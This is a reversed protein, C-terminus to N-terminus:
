MNWLEKKGTSIALVGTNLIEMIDEKTDILGGAIVPINISGCVRKLIGPMVAPMIEIMDPEVSHITKQMTNYSQSDVLFARQIAIMGEQRAYKVFSSRTSMIGDPAVTQALYRLAKQDKGLGEILDFHIFVIKGYDRIKGVCGKLSFIDSHLLFITTVPSRLATELDYEERVAAIVPNDRIKDVVETMGMFGRGYRNYKYWKGASEKM